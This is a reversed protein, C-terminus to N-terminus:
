IELMEKLTGVAFTVLLLGICVWGKRTIKDWFRQKTKDWTEGGIALIGSVLGLAVLIVNLMTSVVIASDSRAIRNHIVKRITNMHVSSAIRPRDESRTM